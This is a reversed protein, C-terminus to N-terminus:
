RSRFSALNRAAQNPKYALQAIARDVKDKTSTRVNPEANVVRSVTKASVGALNAVDIITAKSM